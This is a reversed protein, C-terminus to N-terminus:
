NLGVPELTVQARGKPQLEVTKYRTRAAWLKGISDATRDIRDHTALVLYKGPRLPGCSYNGEQDAEGTVMRVALM